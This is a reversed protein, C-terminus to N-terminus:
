LIDTSLIAMVLVHSNCWRSKRFRQPHYIQKQYNLLIIGSGAPSSWRLIRLNQRWLWYLPLWSPGPYNLLSSSLCRWHHIWSPYEKVKNWHNWESCEQWPDWYTKIEEDRWVFMIYRIQEDRNCYVVPHDRIGPGLSLSRQKNDCSIMLIIHNSLSGGMTDARDQSHIVRPIWVRSSTGRLDLAKM